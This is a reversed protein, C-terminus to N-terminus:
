EPNGQINEEEMNKVFGVCNMFYPTNERFSKSFTNTPTPTRFAVPTMDSPFFYSHNSKSLFIPDMPSLDKYRPTLTFITQDTEGTNFIPPQQFQQFTMFGGNPNNQAMLSLIESM